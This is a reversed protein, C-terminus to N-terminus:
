LWSPSISEGNLYKLSFFAKRALQEQCPTCFRQAISKEVTKYEAPIYGYRELIRPIGKKSIRENTEKHMVYEHMVCYPSQCHSNRESDKPYQIGMLHGVEHASVLEPQTVDTRVMAIGNILNRDAYRVAAGYTQNHSNKNLILKDTLIISYDAELRPWHIGDFNVPSSADNTIRLKRTDRIVEFPNSNIQAVIKELGEHAITTDLSSSASVDRFIEVKIKESM